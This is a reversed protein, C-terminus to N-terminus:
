YPQNYDPHLYTGFTSVAFTDNAQNPVFLRGSEGTCEPSTYLRVSGDARVAPTRNRHTPNFYFRRFQTFMHDAYGEGFLVFLSPDRVSAMRAHVKDQGSNNWNHSAPIVALFDNLRYTRVWPTNGNNDMCTAYRGNITPGPAHARVDAQHTYAPCGIM